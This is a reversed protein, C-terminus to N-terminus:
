QGGASAIIVFLAQTRNCLRASLAGGRPAQRGQGGIAACRGMCADSLAVPKIHGDQLKVVGQRLLNRPSLTTRIPVVLQAGPHPGGFVSDLLWYSVGGARPRYGRWRSWVM